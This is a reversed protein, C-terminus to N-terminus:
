QLQRERKNHLHEVGDNEAAILRPRMSAVANEGQKPKVLRLNEAAILRPRMSAEAMIKTKSFIQRKGRCDAAAENFGQWATNCQLGMGVNEAAILRPRMSAM